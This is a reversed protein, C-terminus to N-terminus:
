ATNVTPRRHAARLGARYAKEGAVCSSCPEEGRRFHAAFGAHDGHRQPRGDLLGVQCALLIANTINRARLATVIVQQHYHVTGVALHMARATQPISAGAAAHRLVEMQRASLPRVLAPVTM